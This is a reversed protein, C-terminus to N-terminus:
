EAAPAEEKKKRRFQKTRLFARKMNECYPRLYVDEPHANELYIGILRYIKLIARGLRHKRKLNAADLGDTFARMAVITEDWRRIEDQEQRLEEGTRKVLLKTDRWATAAHLGSEIFEPDLNAARVRSRKERVSLQTFDPIRQRLFRLGEVLTEPKALAPPSSQAPALLDTAESAATVIPLSSTQRDDSSM